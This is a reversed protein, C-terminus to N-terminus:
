KSFGIVMEVDIFLDTHGDLSMAVRKPLVKRVRVGGEKQKGSM